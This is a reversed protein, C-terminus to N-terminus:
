GLRPEAGLNVEVATSLAPGRRHDQEKSLLL